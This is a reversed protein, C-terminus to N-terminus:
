KGNEEELTKRLGKIYSNFKRKDDETLLKVDEVSMLDYWQKLDAVTCASRVKNDASACLAKLTEKSEKEKKGGDSNQLWQIIAKGDEATPTWPDRQFLQTRDKDCTAIHGEPIM